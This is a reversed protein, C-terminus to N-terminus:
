REDPRFNADWCSIVPKRHEKRYRNRNSLCQLERLVRGLAGGMRQEAEPLKFPLRLVVREVSDECLEFGFGFGFRRTTM